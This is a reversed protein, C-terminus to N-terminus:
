KKVIRYVKNNKRAIYIGPNLRALSSQSVTHSRGDLSTIDLTEGNKLKRAFQVESISIVKNTVRPKNSKIASTKKTIIESTNVTIKQESVTSDLVTNNMEVSSNGSNFTSILIVGGTVMAM